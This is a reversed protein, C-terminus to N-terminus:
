RVVEDIDPADLAKPWPSLRDAAIRYSVLRGDTVADLVDGYGEVAAIERDRIQAFSVVELDDDPAIGVVFYLAHTNRDRFAADGPEPTRRLLDATSRVRRPRTTSDATTM